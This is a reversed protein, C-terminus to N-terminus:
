HAPNNLDRVLLCKSDLPVGDRVQVQLLAQLFRSKPGRTATRMQELLTMTQASTVYAAAAETGLTDLGALVLVYHDPSVNPLFSVLGYDIQIAGTSPDIGLEYTEPQGPAPHLDRVLPGLRYSPSPPLPAFVIDQSLPLKSLIQDEEGGGLFIVNQNKIDEFSVVRSRKISFPKGHADLFQAIRVAAVLEGSGTYADYYYFAGGAEKRGPHIEPYAQIPVRTGLPMSLIGPPNYRYLNKEKGILFAPNPFVILPPSSSSLLPQWLLALASPLTKSPERSRRWLVGAGLILGSAVLALAGRLRWDVRRREKASSVGIEPPPCETTTQGNGRNRVYETTYQGRPMVIRIADKQGETEYYEDLKERLRYMQARVINDAKPDFDSPRGLVETALTYEKIPDLPSSLSTRVIYELAQRLSPSHSFSKSHLVKQLSTLVVDNSIDQRETRELESM